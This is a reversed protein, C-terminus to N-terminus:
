MKKGQHGKTELYPRFKDRFGQEVMFTVKTVGGEGIWLLLKIFDSVMLGVYAETLDKLTSTVSMKLTPEMFCSGNM